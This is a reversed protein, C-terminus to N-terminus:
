KSRHVVVEGRYGESSQSFRVVCCEPLEQIAHRTEDPVGGLGCLDVDLWVNAVFVSLVRVSMQYQSYLVGLQVSPIGM